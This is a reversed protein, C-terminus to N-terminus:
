KATITGKAKDANFEDFYRYTGADLPGVFIKIQGGASIIKERNLDYSEFEAARSDANKVTIAVKEGAPVELNAPTFQQNQLTITYDAAHALPAAALVMAMARLVTNKILM